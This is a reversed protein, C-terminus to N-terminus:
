SLVIKFLFKMERLITKASIKNFSIDHRPSVNVYSMNMKKRFCARIFELEFIFGNTKTDIFVNRARNNLGKIGAQTDVSKFNLLFYNAVRLSRSLIKRSLPLYDYYEKTRVGIVLDSKNNKLIQYVNHLAKEGFPFDWDTYIYHESKAHILGTKLAFGKGRNEPYSILEVNNYEKKLFKFGEELCISSGDNILHFMISVDQSLALFKKISSGIKQEWGSPPNYIPLIIALDIKPNM